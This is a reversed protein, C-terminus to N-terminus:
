PTEMRWGLLYAVLVVLAIGFWIFDRHVISQLNRQVIAERRSLRNGTSGRLAVDFLPQSEVVFRNFARPTGPM